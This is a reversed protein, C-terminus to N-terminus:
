RRALSSLLGVAAVGIGLLVAVLLWAPEPVVILGHWSHELLGVGYYAPSLHAAAFLWRGDFRQPELAGSDLYFPLTIGVVLPTIPLTRRLVGGLLGGLGVAAVVTLGIAGLVAFPQQLPIGYGWRVIGATALSAVFSIAAAALLRGALLSGFGNPALRLIRGPGGEWERAVVLGGLVAGSICAALAIASVGLYALYGTDRALVNVLQPRMRVEPFGERAAFDVAAAPIARRVDETIDVNVNDVTVALPATFGARVQADFGRPIEIIAVLRGRQLERRARSLDMPRLDFSHHARDLSSVFSRALPTQEGVVVATPARYGTIAFLSLLLLLNVPLLFALAASAPARRVALLQLRAAEALIRLRNM